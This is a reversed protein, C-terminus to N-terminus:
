AGDDEHADQAWRSLAAQGEAYAAKATAELRNIADADIVIAPEDPQSRAENILNAIFRATQVGIAVHPAGVGALVAVKAGIDLVADLKSTAM